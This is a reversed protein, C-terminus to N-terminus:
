KGQRVVKDGESVKDKMDASSFGAAAMNDHVKEVKVDGIYKNSHEVSFVNGVAVGDKSGVNIVAFNYDRNVVLVKGELGAAPVRTTEKTAKAKKSTASKATAKTDVVEAVPIAEPSVVIRGLEIQSQQQAELEKLKAELEGRKVELQKLQNQFGEADKQAVNFREELDSRLKKQTELDTRFQEMKTLAEQKATKEQQLDTTLDDIKKKAEDLQTELTTILGKAERLNEEANKQRMKLEELEDQLVANRSQEQKLFYFGGGALAISLAIIVILLVIPLKAQGQM